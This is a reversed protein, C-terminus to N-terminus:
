HKLVFPLFITGRDAPCTVIGYNASKLGGTEAARIVYNYAYGLEPVGSAGRWGCAVKFGPKLMDGPIYMSTQFFGSHYARVRNDISVTMSIIYQSASASVSLYSWEIYCTGVSFRYCTAAPSDIFSITPSQGNSQVERRTQTTGEAIVTPTTGQDARAVLTNATFALATVAFAVM